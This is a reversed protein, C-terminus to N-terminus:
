AFVATGTQTEIWEGAAANYVKITNDDDSDVWIKTIDEPETDSVVFAPGPLPNILINGGDTGIYLKGTDTSFGLEGNNLAPIDAELGTRVKVLQARTAYTGGSITQFQSQTVVEPLTVPGIQGAQDIIEEIMSKYEEVRALLANIQAYYDAVRALVGHTASVREDEAMRRIEEAVQRNQEQQAFTDTLALAQQLATFRSGIEEEQEMLFQEYDEPSEDVYYNLRASTMLHGSGYIRIVMYHMGVMATFALPLNFCIMGDEPNISDSTKLGDAYMTEGDPLLVEVVVQSFGSYNYAEYGDLLQINFLIGTENQFIGRIVKSSQEKVSLGVNFQKKDMRNEEKFAVPASGEAGM